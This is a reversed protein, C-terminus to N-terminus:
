GKASDMSHGSVRLEDVRKYVLYVEQSQIAIEELFKGM